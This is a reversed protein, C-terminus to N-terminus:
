WTTSPSVYCLVKTESKSSSTEYLILSTVWSGRRPRNELGGLVYFVVTLIIFFHIPEAIILSHM